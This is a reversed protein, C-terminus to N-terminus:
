NSLMLVESLARRRKLKSNDLVLDVGQGVIRPWNICLVRAVEIFLCLALPIDELIPQLARLCVYVQASM